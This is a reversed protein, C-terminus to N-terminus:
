RLRDDPRGSRIPDPPEARSQRFAPAGRHGLTKRRRLAPAIAVGGARNASGAAARPVQRKKGGNRAALTKRTMAFIFTTLGTTSISPSSIVRIMQCYM